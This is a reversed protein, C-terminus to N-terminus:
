TFVISIEDNGANKTLMFPEKFVRIGNRDAYETKDLVVKPCTVTCINGASAGLAISIQKQTSAEWASWFDYTAVLVSEPDFSGKGERSAIDFGAIGTSDGISPREAIANNLDLELREAVFSTISDFTLTSGQVLPPVTSDYTPSVIATDDPTQYKGMFRFEIKATDGSVFLLKATGMCGNIKHRLGDFYAYITVSSRYETTPAYTVSTSAVITESMACAQLLAGIGKPPTGASGSGRIEVVFSFEVWRKGLLSQAPSMSVGYPLRSILSGAPGLTLNSIIEVGDSAATPTPDQGYGIANDAAYSLSGTDDASTDYGAYVGASTAANTGSDWLLSLSTGTRSITIKKTTSSYAATTSGDGASGMKSAIEAALEAPTYTGADLTATLESGGDEKFDIDDNIGARINITGLEKKVLIVAKRTLLTM